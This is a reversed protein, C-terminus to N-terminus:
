TVSVWQDIGLGLQSPVTALMHIGPQADASSYSPHLAATYLYTMFKMLFLQAEDM